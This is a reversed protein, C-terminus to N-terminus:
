GAAWGGDCPVIAGNVNSAEDALLFVTLAALETPEAGRIATGHVPAIAAQGFEDLKSPDISNMINTNVGGPCVANSRVNEKAYTYATNKTLGVLGHKSSTYAAGAAAGRIGAESAVNVISGAGAKRMHPLVERTLLFPATLNVRIAREWIADDTEAAGAFLDMVGANNVLGKIPGHTAAEAVLATVVEPDSVDGVAVSASGGEKSIIAVTEEAAAADLDAVVVHAGGAATQEATARGIGSGAGTVIVVRDSLTPSM